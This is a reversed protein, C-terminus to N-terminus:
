QSGVVRLVINGIMVSWVWARIGTWRELWMGWLARDGDKWDGMCGQVEGFTSRQFELWYALAKKSLLIGVVSWTEPTIWIACLIVRLSCSHNQLKSVNYCSVSWGLVM